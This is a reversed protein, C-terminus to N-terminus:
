LQNIIAAGKVVDSCDAVVHQCPAPPITLQRLRHLLTLLSFQCAQLHLLEDAATISDTADDQQRQLADDPDAIPDDAATNDDPQVKNFKQRKRKQRRKMHKQAEAESCARTCHRMTLSSAHAQTLAHYLHLLALLVHKRSAAPGTLTPM